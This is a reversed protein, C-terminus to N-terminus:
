EYSVAAVVAATPVIYQYSYGGAAGNDFVIEDGQICVMANTQVVVHVEADAAPSHDATFKIYPGSEVTYDTTLTQLTGDVTVKFVEAVANDADLGIEPTIKNGLAFTHCMRVLEGAPIVAVFTVILDGTGSLAYTVTVTRAVYEGATAVTIDITCGDNSGAMANVTALASADAYGTGGQLIAVGTVAGANITTVIAKGLAGGTQTITLIDGVEYGTGGAAVAVTKLAGAVPNAVEIVKAGTSTSRPDVTPTAGVQTATNTFVLQGALYAVCKVWDGANPLGQGGSGVPVFTVVGSAITYDTTLEYETWSVARGRWNKGVFLKYTEYTEIDNAHVDIEDVVAATFAGVQTIRFTAPTPSTLVDSAATAFGLTYSATGDAVTFDKIGGNPNVAVVTVVADHPSTLGTLGNNILHFTDGVAYGAGPSMIDISGLKRTASSGTIHGSAAWSGLCQANYMDRESAASAIPLGNVKFANGPAVWAAGNGATKRWLSFTMDAAPTLKTVGLLPYAEAQAIAVIKSINM